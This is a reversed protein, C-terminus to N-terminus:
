CLPHHVCTHVKSPTVLNLRYGCGCVKVKVKRFFSFGATSGMDSLAKTLEAIPEHAQICSVVCTFSLSSIPEHAQICSVVCTFSLSSIPEHAQICSVVCTFSLSSIPEHATYTLSCMYPYHSEDGGNDM